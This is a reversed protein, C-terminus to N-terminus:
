KIYEEITDDNKILVILSYNEAILVTVKESNGTYAYLYKKLLIGGKEIYGMEKLLGYWPLGAENYQGPNLLTFLRKIQPDNPSEFVFKYPGDYTGIIRQQYGSSTQVSARKVLKSFTFTQAFSIETILLFGTILLFKKM